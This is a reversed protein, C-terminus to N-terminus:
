RSAELAAGPRSALRVRVEALREYQQLIDDGLAMLALEQVGGDLYANLRDVVADISGLLTWRQVTELSTRYQSWVHAEAKARGGAANDDVRVAVLLATGPCSRGREAALEALRASREALREPSLWMPLWMDGFRAARRIAAEGRGGVYIPPPASMAPELAPVDLRLTPGDHSVARGTLLDGLVSLAEDLRADRQSVPVGTAALEQPSEDGVGVGLLLRGGGSLADITALQKAAWAPQRRGLLMVSFGLSIRETVAAAAALCAPADLGPATCGLHDGIWAVDFGLEECLRAAAVVQPPGGSRLPDFTPLLLGCRPAGPASAPALLTRGAATVPAYAPPSSPRLTTTTTPTTTAPV